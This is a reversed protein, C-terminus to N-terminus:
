GRRDLHVRCIASKCRQRRDETANFSFHQNTNNATPNPINASPHYDSGCTTNFERTTTNNRTDHLRTNNHTINSNRKQKTKPEDAAMSLYGSAMIEEVMAASDLKTRWEIEGCDVALSCIEFFALLRFSFFLFLFSSFSLGTDTTHAITTKRM